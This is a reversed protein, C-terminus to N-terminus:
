QHGAWLTDNDSVFRYSMRFRETPAWEITISDEPPSDSTSLVIRPCVGEMKVIRRPLRLRCGLVTIEAGKDEVLSLVMDTDQSATIQELLPQMEAPSIQCTLVGQLESYEVVHRGEITKVVENLDAFDESSFEIEPNFEISVGLFDQLKRILKIYALEYRIQQFYPQCSEFNLGGDFLNNGDIEMSVDLAWGTTALEIFNDVRDFFPLLRISKGWWPKLDHAIEFDGVGNPGDFVPVDFSLSLLGNFLSGAFHLTKQGLAAHGHCDDLQEIRNSAPDILRLKLTTARKRPEFAINNLQCEKSWIHEMLPSGFIKVGTAPLRVDHAHNLMRQYGEQWAQALTTPIQLKFPITEQPHFTFTTAGNQYATEVRIRPDLQNLVTETAQHVNGIATVALSTSQGTLAAVLLKTGDDRHPRPKGKEADAEAEAHRKWERLLEPRYRSERDDIEDAHNACLWIANNISRREASTLTEDYRPGGRSAATIHSARGFHAVELEGEGPGSTPVRCDPHSCQFGVRERLSRIVTKPFDDKRGM